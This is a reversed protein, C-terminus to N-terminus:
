KSENKQNNIRTQIDFLEKDFKPNIRIEKIAVEKDGYSGDLMKSRQIQKFPFYINNVEKYKLFTTSLYEKGDTLDGYYSMKYILHTKPNLYFYLTDKETTTLRIKYYTKNEFIADKLRTLSYDKKKWNYLVSEIDIRLQIRIKEFKNPISELLMEVPTEGISGM